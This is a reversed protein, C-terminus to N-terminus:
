DIPTGCPAHWDYHRRLYRRIARTTTIGELLGVTDLPLASSMLNHDPMEEGERTGM